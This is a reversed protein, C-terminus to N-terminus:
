NWWSKLLEINASISLTCHAGCSCRLFIKHDSGGHLKRGVSFANSKGCYKCELDCIEDALNM